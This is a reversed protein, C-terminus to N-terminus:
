LCIGMMRRFFEEKEEDSAEPCCCAPYVYDDSDRLTFTEFCGDICTAAMVYADDGYEDKTHSGIIGYHQPCSDLRVVTGIKKLEM